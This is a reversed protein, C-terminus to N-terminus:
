ELNRSFEELTLAWKPALSADESEKTEEGLKEGKNGEMGRVVRRFEKAAEGDLMRNSRPNFSIIQYIVVLIRTEEIIRISLFYV